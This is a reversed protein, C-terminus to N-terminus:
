KKKTKLFAETPNNYNYIYPFISEKIRLNDKLTNELWVNIKANHMKYIEKKVEAAASLVTELEVKNNSLPLIYKAYDVLFACLTPELLTSSTEDLNINILNDYKNYLDQYVEKDTLYLINIIKNYLKKYSKKRLIEELTSNIGPFSTKRKIYYKIKTIFENVSHFDLLLDEDQLAELRIAEKKEDFTLLSNLYLDYKQNNDWTSDSIYYGHIHYKDDDIKVINRAHGENTIIKAEPTYGTDYSKDVEVHIQMCPINLRNLLERTLNAFGVCVLLDNNDQLIYRLERSKDTKDDKYPKYNKVIDYVAIYKEFPSLSSNRIPSILAELKKEEYLYEKFSYHYNNNVIILEINNSILFIINSQRFLERNNVYLKITYKKKHNKLEKIINYIQHYYIEEDYNISPIPKFDIVSNYNRKTLEEISKMNEDRKM